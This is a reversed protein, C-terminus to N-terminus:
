EDTAKLLYGYVAKPDSRPSSRSINLILSDQRFLRTKSYHVCNSINTSSGTLLHSIILDIDM